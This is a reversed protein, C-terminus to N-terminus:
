RRSTAGREVRGAAGSLLEEEEQFPRPRRHLKAQDPAIIFAVKAPCGTAASSSAPVSATQNTMSNRFARLRRASAVLVSRPLRANRRAHMTAPASNAASADFTVAVANEYPRTMKLTLRAM